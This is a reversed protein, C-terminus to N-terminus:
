RAYGEIYIGIHDNPKVILGSKECSFNSVYPNLTIFKGTTWNICIIKEKAKLGQVSGFVESGLNYLSKIETPSLARNYIRVDDLSGNLFFTEGLYGDVALYASHVALPIGGTYTNTGKLEGNLYIKIGNPGFTGIMHYWQGKVPQIGSDAWNWGSGDFDYLGFAINPSYYPHIGFMVGNGQEFKQQLITFWTFGYFPIPDPISSFNVWGAVTGEILYGPFPLEIYDNIGDFKLATLQTANPVKGKVCTPKDHIIGHKSNGSVDNANCKDFSYHAILGDSLTANANCSFIMFFLSVVRILKKM